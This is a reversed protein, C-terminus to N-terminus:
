ANRVYTLTWMTGASNLEAFVIIPKGNYLIRCEEGDTLVWGKSKASTVSITWSDPPTIPGDNLINGGGGSTSVMRARGDGADRRGTVDAATKTDASPPKRTPSTPAAPKRAM